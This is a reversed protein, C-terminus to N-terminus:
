QDLPQVEDQADESELDGLTLTHGLPSAKQLCGTKVVLRDGLDEIGRVGCNPRQRRVKSRLLLLRPSLPHSLAIPKFTDQGQNEELVHLTCGLLVLDDLEAYGSERVVLNRIEQLGGCSYNRLREVCGSPARGPPAFGRRTLLAASPLGGPLLMLAGRHRCRRVESRRAGEVQRTHVSGAAIDTSMDVPLEVRNLINHADDNM